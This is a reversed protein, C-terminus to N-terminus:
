RTGVMAEVLIAALEDLLREGLARTAKAPAGFYARPGGAEEFTTAGRVIGAALEAEVEPLRAHGKVFSPAIALMLSTEYLGSHGDLPAGTRAIREAHRKSGVNPFAVTAGTVEKVRKCADFLADLNAPELHANAIALGSAGAHHADILVEAVLATMVPGPISITGPFNRAFRTVGYPIAPLVLAQTRSAALEAMATAIRVDTDLPLHPGHAECAGTPLIVPRGVLSAEPFRRGGLAPSVGRPRM